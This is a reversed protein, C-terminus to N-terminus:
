KKSEGGLATAAVGILFGAVLGAATPCAVMMATTFGEHDSFDKTRNLLIVVGAAIGLITFFGTSALIIISKVM